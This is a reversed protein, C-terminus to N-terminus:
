NRSVAEARKQLFIVLRFAVYLAVTMGHALVAM